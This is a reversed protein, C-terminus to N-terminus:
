KGAEKILLEATALFLSAYEQDTTQGFNEPLMMEMAGAAQKIVGRLRAIEVETGTMEEGNVQESM